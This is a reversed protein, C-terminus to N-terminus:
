VDKDKTKIDIYRKHYNLTEKAIEATTIHEHKTLKELQDILIESKHNELYIDIGCLAGERVVSEEHESLKILLDEIGAHAVEQKGAHEALFTLDIWDMTNSNVLEIALEPYNVGIILFTAESPYRMFHTEKIEIPIFDMVYGNKVGILNLVKDAGTNSDAMGKIFESISETKNRKLAFLPASFKTKQAALAFEKMDDIDKLKNWDYRIGSLLERVRYQYEVAKDKVSGILIDKIDDLKDLIILKILNRDSANAASVTGHLAKYPITKIKVRNFQSDVVVLGEHETPNWKNIEDLIASVDALRQFSYEVPVSFGLEKFLKTPKYEELSVNHRAGLITLKFDKNDVCIRNFPSTLEFMYTSHKDLKEHFNPSVGMEFLCRSALEAFTMSCNNVKTNGECVKRTGFFWQGKEDDWYYILLSGDLKEQYVATSWDIVAAHGEESNFFKFFPCAIIDWSGQRLYLGRCEQSIREGMPSEIQNYNLAVKNGCFRPEIGFNQELLELTNGSSRLYKQVELM